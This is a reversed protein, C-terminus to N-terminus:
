DLSVQMLWEDALIMFDDMDIICDCTLDSGCNNTKQWAQALAAFDALDIDGDSEVDGVLVDALYLNRIEMSSLPRNYILVEDILGSYFSRSLLGDIRAGMFVNGEDSTLVAQTNAYSPNVEKLGDIYLEIENVTPTGDDELVAAVHHWQGDNIKTQSRVYGNWVATALTGDSDMRFMWKQGCVPSGWTAIPCDKAATTKIWASCTRSGVVGKFRKVEVYNKVGDFSLGACRKGSVWNSSDMDALTGDRNQATSDEAILDGADNFQWYGVPETQAEIIMSSARDNWGDDVFCSDNTTKVLTAGQFNDDAFLTVTYGPAARVSSADNDKGGGAVIDAATYAGVRYGASWGGYECDQHLRVVEGSYAVIGMADNIANGYQSVPYTGVHPLMDDLYWMFGGAIDYASKWTSMKTAVQSPTQGTSYCWLGPTVKLGSFYGNWTGPNNGAGGEYCQLYVRDVAGPRQANTNAYVSKWFSSQTYPCLTIKFGLDNLMVALAVSSNVDYNSEDDYSVADIAPITDRIAKFNRYLISGSGTGQSAILSEIAEFDEVGWSGISIEVRNVSTTGTKFAAVESPWTSRGVYKGDGVIKYDNLILDGNDKNVHITWLVVTTFGSSRIMDRHTGANSYLPGGSYLVSHGAYVAAKSWLGMLGISLLLLTTYYRNSYRM